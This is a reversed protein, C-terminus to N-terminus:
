GAAKAKDKADQDLPTVDEPAQGQPIVQDGEQLKVVAEADPVTDGAPKPERKAASDEHAPPTVQVSKAAVIADLLAQIAGTLKDHVPVKDGYHKQLATAYSTLDTKTTTLTTELEQLRTGKSTADEITRVAVLANKQDLYTKGAKEM